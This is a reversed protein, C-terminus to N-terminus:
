EGKIRLFGDRWEDKIIKGEKSKQNIIKNIEIAFDKRKMIFRHSVSTTGSSVKFSINEPSYWLNTLINKGDVLKIEKKLTENEKKIVKRNNQKM